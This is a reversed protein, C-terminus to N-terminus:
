DNKFIITYLDNRSNILLEVIPSKTVDTDVKLVIKGKLDNPTVNEVVSERVEGNKEYRVTVMNQYFSDVNGNVFVLSDKDVKLKGDLILLTKHSDKSPDINISNYLTYKKDGSSFKYSYDYNKDIKYDNVVLTTDLLNSKNFKVVETLSKKKHEKINNDVEPNANLYVYKAFIKSDEFVFGNNLRIKYSSKLDKKDLAFTLVYDESEQPVIMNEYYPKGMDYFRGSMDNIPKIIKNGIELSINSTEFSSLKTSINKINVVVALYYKDETIIEGDYGLNSVYSEKFNLAFNNYNFTEKFSRTKNYVEINIIFSILLYILVGCGLVKFILSNELVYYKGERISKNVNRKVVYDPLNVDISIEEDDEEDILFQNEFNNFTFTKIDFGIGTIFAYVLFVLQPYYFIKVIDATIRVTASEVGAFRMETLIGYNSFFLILLVIYYITAIVTYLTRRKKSNFLFLITVYIAILIIFALFIFLNFYRTSDLVSEVAYNNAIYENYFTLLSGSVYVIYATLAFIILHILKFHKILFAYPKRLIM